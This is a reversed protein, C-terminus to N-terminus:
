KDPKRAFHSLVSDLIGAIQQVGLRKAVAIFFMLELVFVIVPVMLNQVKDLMWIDLLITIILLALFRDERRCDREAELQKELQDIKETLPDPEGGVIFNTLAQAREEDGM